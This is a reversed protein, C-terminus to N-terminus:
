LPESMLADDNLKNFYEPKQFAIKSSYNAYKSVVTTLLKQIKFVDEPDSTKKLQRELMSKQKSFTECCDLLMDMSRLSLFNFRTAALLRKHEIQDSDPAEDKRTATNEMIYEPNNHLETKQNM